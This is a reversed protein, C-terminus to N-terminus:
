PFRFVHISQDKAGCRKPQKDIEGSKRKDSVVVVRNADLWAVGEVNCYICKGKANLPFRYVRGADAIQWTGPVFSGVWLQSSAQSVIAIREGSVDVGAYDVFHLSSPLEITHVPRWGQAGKSLVLIRGGGPVDDGDGIGKCRNGECLGLLFRQDGRYVCSLGELGKRDDKFPFAVPARGQRIFDTSLEHIEALFHEPGQEVAEVVTFFCEGRPDYAIDEYGEGGSALCFLANGPVDAQLAPNLRAIWTANDFVVYYAGHWVCVGSAEFRGGGCGGLLGSIKAEAEAELELVPIDGSGGM